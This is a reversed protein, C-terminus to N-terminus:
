KSAGDYILREATVTDVAFPSESSTILVSDGVKLDALSRSEFVTKENTNVTIKKEMVEFDAETAKVGKQPTKLKEPNKPKSFDLLRVNVALQNESINEIKGFFSESLKASLPSSEKISSQAAPKEATGIESGTFATISKQQRFVITGLILVVMILVGIAITTIKEFNTM